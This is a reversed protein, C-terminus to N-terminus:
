AEGTLKKVASGVYNIDAHEAIVPALLVGSPADTVKEGKIKMTSIAVPYDDKFTAYYHQGISKKGKTADNMLNYMKLADLFLKANYMAVSGKPGDMKVRMTHGYIKESDPTRYIEKPTVTIFGYEGDDPKSFSINFDYNRYKRHRNHRDAIGGDESMEKTLSKVFMRLSNREQVGLDATLTREGSYDMGPLRIVPAGDNFNEIAEQTPKDEMSMWALTTNAQDITTVLARGDVSQITPDKMKFQNEMQKMKNIALVDSLPIGSESVDKSAENNEAAKVPDVYTAPTNSPPEPELDKVKIDAIYPAYLDLKRNTKILRAREGKSRLAEVDEYALKRPIGFPKKKVPYVQRDKGKGKTRFETM